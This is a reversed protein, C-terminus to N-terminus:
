DTSSSIDSVTALTNPTLPGRDHQLWISAKPAHDVVM